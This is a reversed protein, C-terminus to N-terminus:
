YVFAFEEVATSCRSVENKKALHAVQSKSCVNSCFVPRESPPTADCRRQLRADFVVVQEVRGGFQSNERAARSLHEPGHGPDRLAVGNLAIERKFFL